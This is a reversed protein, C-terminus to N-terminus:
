VKKAIEYVEDWTLTVQLNNKIHWDINKKQINFQGNAGEVEARGHKGSWNPITDVDQKTSMFVKICDEFLMAYILYDFHERKVNQINGDYDVDFCKDFSVLRQIVNNESESKVREVLPLKKKPLTILPRAVKMEYFMNLDDVADNNGNPSKKIGFHYRLIPEMYTEGCARSSAFFMGNRFKKVEKKM